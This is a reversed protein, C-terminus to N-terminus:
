YITNISIEEDSDLSINVDSLGPPNETCLKIYVCIQQPTFDTILMEILESSYTEIFDM